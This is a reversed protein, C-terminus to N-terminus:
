LLGPVALWEPGRGGRRVVLEGLAPEPGLHRLSRGVLWHVPEKQDGTSSFLALEEHDRDQAESQLAFAEALDRNGRGGIIEQSRFREALWGECGGHLSALHRPKM